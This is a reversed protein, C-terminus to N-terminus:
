GGFVSQYITVTSAITILLIFLIVPIIVFKNKVKTAIDGAGLILAHESVLESLLDIKAELDKIADKLLGFVDRYYQTGAVWGYTGDSPASSEYVDLLSFIKDGEKRKLQEYFAIPFRWALKDPIEITTYIACPIGRNTVYTAFRASNCFNFFVLKSKGLKLINETDVLNLTEEENIYMADHEDSVLHTAFHIIDYEYDRVEDFIDQVTIDGNLVTTRHLSTLQRIEPIQDLTKHNPAILLVKMKEGNM